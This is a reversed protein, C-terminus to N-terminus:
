QVVTVPVSRIVHGDSSLVVLLYPGPPLNAVSTRFAYGTMGDEDDTAIADAITVARGLADVLHVEPRGAMSSALIRLDIFTNSPVPSPLSLRYSSGARVITTGVPVNCRSTGETVIALGRSEFAIYTPSCTDPLVLTDDIMGSDQASACVDLMRTEGPPIVIPLQHLPISFLVNGVFAPHAIVLNDETSKNRIAVTYCSRDGVAHDPIHIPTVSSLVEVKNRTNLVTVTMAPSTGACGFDDVVHVTYTGAEGVTIDADTSGNSWEYRAYGRPASLKVMEDICITTNRNATIVPAPIPRVTLVFPDSVHQCGNTDLVTITYSGSTKVVITSTTDGTSWKKSIFTGTCSLVASDGQCLTTAAGQIQPKDNPYVRVYVTDSSQRCTRVDYATIVYRGETGVPRERGSVGDNWTYDRFGESGELVTVDGPCISITDTQPQVFTVSFGIENFNSRYIGDGAIYGLTDNVFWVDDVDGDIGCNRLIWSRGANSTYYVSRRSGVGWGENENLLFTGFMSAGTQFERWTKGMDPTWRISGHTPDQGDCDNGATPLCFTQNIHTIEETWYKEGTRAMMSWNVGYDDTTWLVGSSVAYGSGDRYLLCDSLGSSPEITFSVTWSNGGDTTRYYSQADTGCGGALFLGEMENLFYCGWSKSATANFPTIDRWTVGGDTSRFIGAPGSTYGVLPTLFQVSELFEQPLTSGEWTQGGDTTRVVWGEISCAWGYNPSSPLFFVDLYYGTAYKGPLTLKKWQAKGEHAGLVTLVVCLLAAVVHRQRIHTSHLSRNQM